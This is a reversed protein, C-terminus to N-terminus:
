RAGLAIAILAAVVVLGSADSLFEYAILGGTAFHYNLIMLTALAAVIRTRFGAILAIGGGLEGLLALRAFVPAGAILMRAYARSLAISDPDAAWAALREALPSPDLLWGFKSISKVILFIGLAVRLLMLARGPAGAATGGGRGASGRRGKLLSM